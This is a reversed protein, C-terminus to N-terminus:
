TEDSHRSVEVVKCTMGDQGGTAIQQYQGAAFQYTKGGWILGLLLYVFDGAIVSPRLMHPLSPRHPAATLTTM